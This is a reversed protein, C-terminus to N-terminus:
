QSLNLKRKLAIRYKYTATPDHFNWAFDHFLKSVKVTFIFPSRQAPSDGREAELWRATDREGPLRYPSSAHRRQAGDGAQQPHEQLGHLQVVQAIVLQRLHAADQARQQLMDRKVALQQGVGMQQLLDYLLERYTFRQRRRRRLLLRM